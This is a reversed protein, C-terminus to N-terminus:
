TLPPYIVQFGLFRDKGKLLNTHRVHAPSSGGQWRGPRVWVSMIAAPPGWRVPLPHIHDHSVRRYFVTKTKQRIHSRSPNFGRTYSTKRWIDSHFYNFMHRTPTLTRRVSRMNGTDFLPISNSSTLTTQNLSEEPAFDEHECVYACACACVCVHDQHLEHSSSATATPDTPKQATWTEGTDQYDLIKTEEEQHWPFHRLASTMPLASDCLHQRPRDRQPAANCFYRCLCFMYDSCWM